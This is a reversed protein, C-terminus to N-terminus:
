LGLVELLRRVDDPHCTKRRGHPVVVTLLRGDPHNYTRHSGRANFLVFGEHRLVADVQAFRVAGPASHMKEILKARRSV